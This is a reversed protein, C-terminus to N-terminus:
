CGRQASEQQWTFWFVGPCYKQMISTALAVISCLMMPCGYCYVSDAPLVCTSVNHSIVDYNRLTRTPHPVKEESPITLKDSAILSCVQEMGLNLFEECQM